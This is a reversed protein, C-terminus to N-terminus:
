NKLASTTIKQIIKSFVPGSWVVTQIDSVNAITSSMANMYNRLVNM